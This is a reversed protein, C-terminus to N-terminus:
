KPALTYGYSVTPHTCPLAQRVRTCAAGAACHQTLCCSLQQAASRAEGGQLGTVQGRSRGINDCTLRTLPPCWIRLGM